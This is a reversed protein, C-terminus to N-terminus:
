IQYNDTGERELVIKVIERLGSALDENHLLTIDNAFSRVIERPSHSPHAPFTYNEITMGQALNVIDTNLSNVMDNLHKLEEPRRQLSTNNEIFAATVFDVYHFYRWLLRKVTPENIFSTFQAHAELDTPVIDTFTSRNYRHRLIEIANYVSTLGDLIENLCQIRRDLRKGFDPPTIKGQKKQLSDFGKQVKKRASKTMEVYEGNNDTKILFLAKDLGGISLAAHLATKYPATETGSGHEDSGRVEDVFIIRSDLTTLGM